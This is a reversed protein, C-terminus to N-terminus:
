RGVWVKSVRSVVGALWGALWSGHVRGLEVTFCTPLRHGVGSISHRGLPLHKLSPHKYRSSIGLGKRKREKRNKTDTHKM